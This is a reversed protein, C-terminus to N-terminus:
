KDNFRRHHREHREGLCAKFGRSIFTSKDCWVAVPYYDGMVQQGCQGATELDDSAPIKPFIRAFDFACGNVPNLAEQVSFRFNPAPLMNRFLVLKPYQEDGYPM